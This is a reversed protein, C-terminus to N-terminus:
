RSRAEENVNDPQALRAISAVAIHDSDITFTHRMNTILFEGSRKKDKMMDESNMGDYSPTDKPVYVNIIVGISSNFDYQLFHRGDLTIEFRQKDLLLLDARRTVKKLHNALADENYSYVNDFLGSTNIESIYTSPLDAIRQDNIEFDEVFMTYQNNVDGFLNNHHSVIDHDLYDISSTLPDISIYTSHLAGAQALSIIDDNDEIKLHQITEGSRREHSHPHIHTHTFTIESLPNRELMEPLSSLIMGEKLSSYLFMPAGDEDTARDMLWKCVGLPTRNCALVKINQAAASASNIPTDLENEFISEVIDSINGSYSGQLKRFYSVYGHKEIINLVFVSSNNGVAKTQTQIKHIVFEKTIREEGVRLTVNLFEQGQINFLSNIVANTDVITINGTIYPIYISEYLNLEIVSTTIDIEPPINDEGGIYRPARITIEEFSFNPEHQM